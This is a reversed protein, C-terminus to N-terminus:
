YGHTPHLNGLCCMREGILPRSLSAWRRCSGWVDCIVVSVCLDAESVLNGCNNIKCNQDVFTKRKWFFPFFAWTELLTHTESPTVSVNFVRIICWGCCEFLMLLFCCSFPVSSLKSAWASRDSEPFVSIIRIFCMYLNDWWRFMACVCVCSCTVFVASCSVCMQVSCAFQRWWLLYKAWIKM